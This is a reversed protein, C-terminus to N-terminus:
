EKEPAVAVDYKEIFDHCANISQGKTMAFLQAQKCATVAEQVVSHCGNVTDAAGDPIVSPVSLAARITNYIEVPIPNYVATLLQGV